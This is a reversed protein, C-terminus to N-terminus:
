TPLNCSVHHNFIFSSVASRRSAVAVGRRSRFRLALVRAGSAKKPEDPRRCDHQTMSGFRRRMACRVVTQSQPQGAVAARRWHLARQVVIAADCYYRLINLAPALSAARREAEWSAALRRRGRLEVADAADLERADHTLADLEEARGAVAAAVLVSSTGAGKEDIATAAARRM